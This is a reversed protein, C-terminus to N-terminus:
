KNELLLLSVKQILRLIMNIEISKLKVVIFKLKVMIIVIELQLIKLSLQFRSSRASLDASLGLGLGSGFMNVETISGNVMVKDYSGYGGGLMLSGTAAETVKVVIDLKEDSVRKKLKYM